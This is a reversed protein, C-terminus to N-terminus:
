VECSLKIMFNHLICLHLNAVHAPSNALAHAMM